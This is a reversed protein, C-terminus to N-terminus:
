FIFHFRCSKHTTNKKSMLLMNKQYLKTKQQHSPYIIIFHSLYNNHM